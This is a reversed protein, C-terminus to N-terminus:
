LYRADLLMQCRKVFRGTPGKSLPVELSAYSLRFAILKRKLIDRVTASAIKPQAHMASGSASGASAQLGAASISASGSFPAARESTFM